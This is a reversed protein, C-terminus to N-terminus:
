TKLKMRRETKIEYGIEGRLLLSFLVLVKQDGASGMGSSSVAINQKQKKLCSVSLHPFDQFTQFVDAEYLNEVKTQLM